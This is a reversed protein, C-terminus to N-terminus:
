GFFCGYADEIVLGVFDEVSKVQAPDYGHWKLDRRMWFVRWVGQSRVFTAKACPTETWSGPAGRWTPRVEYIEVNQGSIRYRLDLRSRLPPPPRRKQMLVELAREARAM